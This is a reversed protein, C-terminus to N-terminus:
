AVFNWLTLVASLFLYHVRRSAGNPETQTGFNLMCLLTVWMLHHATCAKQPTAGSARNVSTPHIFVQLVARKPARDPACNVM